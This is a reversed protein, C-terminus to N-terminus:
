KTAMTFSGDWDAPPPSVLYEKCREVYIAASPDTDRLARFRAEADAFARRDYLALARRFARARALTDPDLGARPALPEYVKIPRSAGKVVIRDLRRLLFDRALGRATEEGILIDSGYVKCAGELRAALNVTDGTVTYNFRTDSGMNGVVALGSNIGIRTVTQPLGFEAAIVERNFAKLVQVAELAAEVAHRDAEPDDLPAGWICMVADGIFKDIYGGHREVVDSMVTFYRNILGVLRQPDDRLGESLATYGAIDSFWVVVRKTEGGLRLSDAREALQDVLTPALFYRFANHIRRKGQSEITFRYAYSAAFTLFAALALTLVPAVVGADLAAVGGAAIGGLLGALALVGFYPPLAFFILSAATALLGTMLASPGAGPAELWTEELATAVAAAHLFVGPTSRRHTLLGFAQGDAQIACPEAPRVRAARPMHRNAALRRDEVDLDTGVLVVRGAFAKELYDTRGAAACAHIDAFSYTQIPGSKARHDILFDATPLPADVRQILASGFSPRAGGSETPFAAPYARVIDDADILMNVPAVNADGGVALVQGRHPRLSAKSLRTEGLILRGARGAKFLAKLLPKDRGPLLDPRDLSTPFILDVGVAKAGAADAAALVEALQPTWSVRPTGAFPETRYTQEDIVIVAVSRRHADSYGPGLGLWDTAALMLDLGARNLTAIWAPYPGVQERVNPPRAPLVALGLALGLLTAVLARRSWARVRAGTM